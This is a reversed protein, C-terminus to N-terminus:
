LTKYVNFPQLAVPEPSTVTFGIGVTDTLLAVMQLPSLAVSIAVGDEPPPVYEQPFLGDVVFEIVTDGAVVV